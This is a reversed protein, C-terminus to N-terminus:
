KVASRRDGQRFSYSASCRVQANIEISGEANPHLYIGIM